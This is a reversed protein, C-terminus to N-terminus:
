IESKDGSRAVVGGSVKCVTQVELLVGRSAMQAGENLHAREGQREVEEQGGRRWSISTIM